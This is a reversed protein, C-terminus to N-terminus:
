AEETPRAPGDCRARLEVENRRLRQHSLKRGGWCGSCGRRCCCRGLSGTSTLRRCCLVRCLATGRLLTATGTARERTALGGGGSRFSLQLGGLLESINLQIYLLSLMLPIPRPIPRPLSPVLGFFFNFDLSGVGWFRGSGLSAVGVSFLAKFGSPSRATRM